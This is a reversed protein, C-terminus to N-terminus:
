LDALQGTQRLHGGGLEDLPEDLAPQDAADALLAAASAGVGLEVRYPGLAGVHDADVDARFM